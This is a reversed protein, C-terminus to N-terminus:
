KRAEAPIDGCDLGRDTDALYTVKWGNDTDYLIMSNVGCHHLEDGLYFAFQMWASALRQDVEIKLDWIREDWIEDHPSGVARVFGDTSQSSFGRDTARGMIAGDMFVSSVMSSDGARMGDFMHEIVERIEDEPTQAQAIAVNLVTLMCITLITNRM